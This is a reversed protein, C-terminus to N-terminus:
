SVLQQIYNCVHVYVCPKAETTKTTTFNGYAADKFFFVDTFKNSLFENLIFCICM